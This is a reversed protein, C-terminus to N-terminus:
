MFIPFYETCDLQGDERYYRFEGIRTDDQWTGSESLIGNIHFLHRPGDLKGNKRFYREKLLGNRFYIEVRERSPDPSLKYVRQFVTGDENRMVQKLTAPDTQQNNCHVAILFLLLTGTCKLATSSMYAFM